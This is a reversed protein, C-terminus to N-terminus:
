HLVRNADALAREEPGMLAWANRRAIRARLRSLFQPLLRQLAQYARVL